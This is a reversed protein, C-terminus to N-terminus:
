ARPLRTRGRARPSHRAGRAGRRLAADRGDALQRFPPLAPLHAQREGPRARRRQARHGALREPQRDVRGDRRRGFAAVQRDRSGVRIATAYPAPVPLVVVAPQNPLAARNPALPVYPAQLTLEDGTMVPAFAANVCAQIEPVSRFSTNLQLLRAGQAALQQAYRATSASTPAASGTSRSNRIASSSCGAAAGAPRAALRDRRRRRCGPAAPDGGAAPRHGPVRRRLPAHVAGPLRARVLPNGRVLDRARVAPRPLGARGRASKLQEYRGIAGRLERQLLAALDADADMRFRDLRSRLEDVATLVSDRPVGDKYMAGRGHRVNGFCAIERCISRARKGATTTPQAPIASSRSCRSRTPSAGCRNLARACRITARRRSARSSPSSTCRRRHRRRDGTRPRVSKADVRRHLRAM